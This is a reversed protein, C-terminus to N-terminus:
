YAITFNQLAELLLQPCSDGMTFFIGVVVSLDQTLLRLAVCFM